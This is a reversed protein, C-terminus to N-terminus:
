PTAERAPRSAVGHLTVSGMLVVGAGLSVLLQTLLPLAVAFLM